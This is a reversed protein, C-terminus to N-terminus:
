GSLRILRQIMSRSPFRDDRIKELLVQAYERRRWPTLLEEVDDMMTSSPYRDSRVKDLLEDLVDDRITLTEVVQEPVEIEDRDSV